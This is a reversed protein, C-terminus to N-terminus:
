KQKEKMQKLAQNKTSQQQKKKKECKANGPWTSTAIPLNLQWLRGCLSHDSNM